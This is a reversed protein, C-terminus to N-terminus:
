RNSSPHGLDGIDSHADKVTVPTSTALARRVAAELDILSCPKSLYDSAGCDLARRATPRDSSGSLIIVALDPQQQKLAKLLEIGDGGRLQRDIIAVDLHHREVAALAGAADARAFVAFGRRAFRRELVELFEANDDVLLIAPAAVAAERSNPTSSRNM